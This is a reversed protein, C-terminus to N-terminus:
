VQGGLSDYFKAATGEDLVAVHVVNFVNSRKMDGFKTADLSVKGARATVVFSVVDDYSIDLAVDDSLDFAGSFKGEYQNVVLGDFEEAGNVIHKKM